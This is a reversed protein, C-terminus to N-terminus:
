SYSQGRIAINHKAIKGLWGSHDSPGQTAKLVTGDNRRVEHGPGAARLDDCAMLLADDPGGPGRRPAVPEGRRTTCQYWAGDTPQGPDRLGCVRDRGEDNDM